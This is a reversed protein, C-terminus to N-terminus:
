IAGSRWPEFRKSRAVGRPTYITVNLALTEGRWGIACRPRSCRAFLRVANVAVTWGDDEAGGALGTAAALAEIAASVRARVRQQAEFESATLETSYTAEVEWRHEGGPCVDGETLTVKAAVVVVEDLIEAGLGLAPGAFAWLKASIAARAERRPLVGAAKREAQEPTLAVNLLAEREADLAKQEAEREAQEAEHAAEQEVTRAVLKAVATCVGEPTPATPRVGREVWRGRDDIAAILADVEVPPWGGVDIPIIHVGPRCNARIAEPGTVNIEILTPM